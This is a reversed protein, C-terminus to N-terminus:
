SDSLIKPAKQSFSSVYQFTVPLIIKVLPLTPNYSLPSAVLLSTSQLTLCMLSQKVFNVPFHSLLILKLIFKHLRHEVELTLSPTNTHIHTYTYTYTYTHTHTHKHKHKHTHTNININM